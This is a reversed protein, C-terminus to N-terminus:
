TDNDDFPTYGVKDPWTTFSIDLVGPAQINYKDMEDVTSKLCSVKYDLRTENGLKVQFRQGYWLQIDGLNEVNVNAVQGLIRKQELYTVINLGTNLRQAQTTTVPIPNGDEDVPPNPNEYATAQTGSQPANLKVGLIKTYGTEEGVLLKEIVKGSSSILWWNDDSDQVAYSVAIEVIEIKVTDPLKISIRVSDVYPLSSIIKGAVQARNFTLLHAGSEIGSANLVDEVSYKVCGAVTTKSADVKFFVSVGLLFAMVVAVVVALQFILRNRRFPKPPLFVVDPSIEPKEQKPPQQGHTRRKPMQEASSVSRRERQTIETRNSPRRVPQEKQQQPRTMPTTRKKPPATRQGTPRNTTPSGAREKEKTTM